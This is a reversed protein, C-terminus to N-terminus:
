PEPLPEGGNNPVGAPTFAQWPLTAILFFSETKSFKSSVHKYSFRSRCLTAGARLNLQFLAALQNQRNQCHSKQKKATRIGATTATIGTAWRNDPSPARGLPDFGVIGTMSSSDLDANVGRAIGNGDPRLVVAAPVVDPGFAVLFLHCM